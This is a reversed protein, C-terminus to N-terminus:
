ENDLKKDKPFNKLLLDEILDWYYKNKSLGFMTNFDAINTMKYLEYFAWFIRKTWDNKGVFHTYNEAEKAKRIVDSPIIHMTEDTDENIIKLKM